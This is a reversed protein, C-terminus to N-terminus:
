NEELRNKMVIMLVHPQVNINDISLDLCGCYECFHKGLHKQPPNQNELQITHCFFPKYENAKREIAM